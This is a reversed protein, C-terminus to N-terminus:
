CYSCVQWSLRFHLGCLILRQGMGVARKLL